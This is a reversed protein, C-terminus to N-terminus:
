FFKRNCEEIQRNNGERSKENLYELDDKNNELVWKLCYKLYSEGCEMDDYIDAFCMEPEIMWFEALHRTTHSEEARFTPGFTYVDSLACAYNEVALQGSVTLFAPKGFFDGTYDIQGEKTLPLKTSKESPKPLLTTVQFMEGQEKM